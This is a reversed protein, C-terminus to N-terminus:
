ATIARSWRPPRCVWDKPGDIETSRLGKFIQVVLQEQTDFLTPQAALQGTPREEGAIIPQAYRRARQEPALASWERWATEDAFAPRDRRFHLRYKLVMDWLDNREPQPTR